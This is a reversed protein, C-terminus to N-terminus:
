AMIPLWQQYLARRQEPKIGAMQEALPSPSILTVTDMMRMSGAADRYQFNRRRPGSQQIIRMGSIRGKEKLLKLTLSEANVKGSSSTFYLRSITPHQDLTAIIYENLEINQLATDMASGSTTCAFIADSLALNLDTLLQKREEIATETRTFSLPRNYVISLDRWFNNDASGYFFDVDTQRVRGFAERILVSPFTGLLM